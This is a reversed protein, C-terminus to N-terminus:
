LSLEPSPHIIPIADDNLLVTLLKKNFGMKFKTWNLHGLPRQVGHVKGHARVM